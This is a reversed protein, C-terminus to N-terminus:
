TTSTSRASATRSWSSTRKSGRAPWTPRIATGASRPAASTKRRGHHDQHEATRRHRPRPSGAPHRRRVRRWVGGGRRALPRNTRADARRACREAPRQTSGQRGTGGCDHCLKIFEKTEEINKKVVAKDPSHFECATGLGVLEVGSDGFQKAVDRRQDPSACDRRWAQPQDAVGGRPFRDIPLEQHGHALDWEAGWMYTVLGLQM